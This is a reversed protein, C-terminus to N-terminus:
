TERLWCVASAAIISGLVFPWSRALDLVAALSLVGALELGWVLGVPIAVSGVGRLALDMFSRLLSVSYTQLLSEKRADGCTPDHMVEIANRATRVAQLTRAFLGFNKMLAIVGIILWVAGIFATM